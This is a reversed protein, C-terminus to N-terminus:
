SSDNTGHLLRVQENLDRANHLAIVTAFLLSSADRLRDPAGAAITPHADILHHFVLDGVDGEITGSRGNIGTERDGLAQAARRIAEPFVTKAPSTASSGRYRVAKPLVRDSIM